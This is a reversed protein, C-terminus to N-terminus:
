DDKSAPAAAAAKSQSMMMSMFSSLEKHMKTSGYGTAEDFRKCYAKLAPSLTIGESLSLLLLVPVVSIDALTVSDGCIFNRGALYTHELVFLDGDGERTLMDLAKSVAKEPLPIFGLKSYVLDGAFRYLSCHRWDLVMECRAKEKTSSFTYFRKLSEHSDCLYRMIAHSEWLVLGEEKLTPLCHKPNMARFEPKLHDSTDFNIDKMTYTVGGVELLLMPGHCPVSLYTGHLEMPM